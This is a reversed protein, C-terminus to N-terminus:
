LAPRHPLHPGLRKAQPRRQRGPRAFNSPGRYREPAKKSPKDEARAQQIANSVGLRAKGGIWTPVPVTADRERECGAAPSRKAAMQVDEIQDGGAITITRRRGTEPRSEEFSATGVVLRLLFRGVAKRSM